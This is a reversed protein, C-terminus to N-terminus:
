CRSGYPRKCKDSNVCILRRKSNAMATKYPHYGLINGAPGYNCVVFHKTWRGETFRSVACGVHTTDAWAMQTYHGIKPANAPRQVIPGYKYDKHEDDFWAILAEEITFRRKPDTTSIRWSSACAAAKGALEDDWIIFKMDDAAPQNPVEGRAIKQRRLNHGNVFAKKDKCSLPILNAQVCNFFAFVIVAYLQM